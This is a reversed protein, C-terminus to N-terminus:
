LAGHEVPPSPTKRSSGRLPAIAAQRSPTFRVLPRAKSASARGYSQQEPPRESSRKSAPPRSATIASRTSPLRSSLGFSGAISRRLRM